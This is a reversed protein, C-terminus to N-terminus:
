FSGLALSGWPLYLAGDGSVNGKELGRSILLAVSFAPIPSIALSNIEIFHKM